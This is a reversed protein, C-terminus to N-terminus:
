NGVVVGLSSPFNKNKIGAAVLGKGYGDRTAAKGKEEKVIGAM